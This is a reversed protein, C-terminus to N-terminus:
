VVNHLIWHWESECYGIARKETVRYLLEAFLSVSVIFDICFFGTEFFTGCYWICTNFIFFRSVFYVLFCFAHTLLVVFMFLTSRNETMTDEMEGVM